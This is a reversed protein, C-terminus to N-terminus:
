AAEAALVTAAPPNALYRIAAELRAPDDKAYGLALNCERCLLGRVAGSKHCHDVHLTGLRKCIACQDAQSKQLAAFSEVTLGYETRLHYARSYISLEALRRPRHRAFSERQKAGDCPRCYPKLGDPGSCWRGFESALKTEQCQPCRKQTPRSNNAANAAKYRSTRTQIQQAVRQPNNERWEKAIRRNCVLCVNSFGDQYKCHKAFETPPKLEGCKRCQKM